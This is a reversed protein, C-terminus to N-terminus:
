ALLMERAFGDSVKSSSRVIEDDAIKWTHGSPRRSQIFGFPEDAYVGLGQQHCRDLFLTDEGRSVVPFSTEGVLDQDLVLTCGAVRRAWRSSSGPFRLYTVDRDALHVFYSQKGVVAAGTRTMTDVSDRLYWPGYHDDDDFKAIIRASTAARGLDLCEGLSLGPPAFLATGDVEDIISEVGSRDFEDGHCVVVLRCNIGQQRKVSDVVHRLQRPRRTACLVAVSPPLPAKWDTAEELLGSLVGIRSRSPDQAWRYSEVRLRAADLGRRSLRRAIQDINRSKTAVVGGQDAASTAEVVPTGSARSAAALDRGLDGGIHLATILKEQFPQTAAPAQNRLRLVGKRGNEATRVDPLLIGSRPDRLDWRLSPVPETAEIEWGPETTIRLKAKVDGAACYKALEARLQPSGDIDLPPLVRWPQAVHARRKLQREVSRLDRVQRLFRWLSTPTPRLQLLAQGLLYPESREIRRVREEGAAIARLARQEADGATM